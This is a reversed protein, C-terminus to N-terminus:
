LCLYFILSTSLLPLPLAFLLTCSVHKGSYLAKCYQLFSLVEDQRGGAIVELLSADDIMIVTREDGQAQMRRVSESLTQYLRHLPTKAPAGMDAGAGECIGNWASLGYGPHRHCPGCISHVTHKCPLFFSSNPSFIGSQGVNLDAMNAAVMDLFM